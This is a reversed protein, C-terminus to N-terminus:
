SVDWGGHEDPQWKPVIWDGKDLNLYNDPNGPQNYADGRFPLAFKFGWGNLEPLYFCDQSSRSLWLQGKPFELDWSQLQIQWDPGEGEPGEDEM